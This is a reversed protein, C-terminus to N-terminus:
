GNSYTVRDHAGILLMIITVTVCLSCSRVACRIAFLIFGISTRTIEHKEVLITQHQNLSHLLMAKLRWVFDSVAAILRKKKTFAIFVFTGRGRSLVWELYWLQTLATPVIFLFCITQFYAQNGHLTYIMKCIAYIGQMSMQHSSSNTQILGNWSHFRATNFRSIQSQHALTTFSSKPSHMECIVGVYYVM